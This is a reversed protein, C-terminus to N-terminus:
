MGGMGSSNICICHMTSELCCKCRHKHLISGLLISFFGSLPFKMHIKSVTIKISISYIISEFLPRDSFIDNSKKGVINEYEYHRHPILVVELGQKTSKVNAM